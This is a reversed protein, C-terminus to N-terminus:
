TGSGNHRFPVTPRIRRGAPRTVVTTTAVTAATTTLAPSTRAAMTPSGGFVGGLAPGGLRESSETASAGSWGRNAAEAREDVPLAVAGPCDEAPGVGAGGSGLGGVGGGATGGKCVARVSDDPTPGSGAGGGNSFTATGGGTWNTGGAMTGDGLGGGTGCSLM